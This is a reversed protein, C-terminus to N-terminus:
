EEVELPWARDGYRHLGSALAAVDAAEMSEYLYGYHHGPITCYRNIWYTKKVPAMVFRNKMDDLTRVAPFQDNLQYMVTKTQEDFAIVRGISRAGSITPNFSIQAGALAATLNFPKM